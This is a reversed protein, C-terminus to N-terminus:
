ANSSSLSIVAEPVFFGSSEFGRINGPEAPTEGLLLGPVYAFGTARAPYEAGHATFSWGTVDNVFQLRLPSSGEEALSRVQLDVIAGAHRLRITREAGAGDVQISGEPVPQVIGPFVLGQLFAAAPSDVFVQVPVFETESAVEDHDADRWKYVVIQDFSGLLRSKEVHIGEIVFVAGESPGNSAVFFAGAARVVV